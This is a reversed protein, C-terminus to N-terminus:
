LAAGLADLAVQYAAAARAGEARGPALLASCPGTPVEDEQAGLLAYNPGDLEASALPAVVTVM